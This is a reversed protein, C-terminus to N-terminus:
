GDNGEMRVSDAHQFSSDENYGTSVANDISIGSNDRNYEDTVNISSEDEQDPSSYDLEVITDETTPVVMAKKALKSKISYVLGFLQLLLRTLAVLAM